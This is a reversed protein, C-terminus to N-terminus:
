ITDGTFVDPVGREALLARKEESLPNCYRKGDAKYKGGVIDAYLGGMFDFWASAYKQPNVVHFFDYGGASYFVCIAESLSSNEILHYEKPIEFGNKDWEEYLVKDEM